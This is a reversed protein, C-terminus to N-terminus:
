QAQERALVIANSGYARRGPIRRGKESLAMVQLHKAPESNTSIHIPKDKGYFYIKDFNLESVIYILIMDMNNEFGEVIFDCAVGSRKCIANGLQNKEASSHQDRLPCTGSPNQKQILKNLTSSVFGYTIKLSGFKKSVPKLILEILMILARISEAENPLNNITSQHKSQHWNILQSMIPNQLLLTKDTLLYLFANGKKKFTLKGATRLHMLECDSVALIKKFETSSFWLEQQM